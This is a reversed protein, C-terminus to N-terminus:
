PKTAIVSGLQQWPIAIIDDRLLLPRECRCIIYAPKVCAYQEMFKILHRADYLTPTESWKIEIPIYQKDSELVYDVEPGAHDRWYRLRKTPSTIRLIRLLELGIFQEFLIGMTKSSLETGELAAIRRIGMDFFLYKPAKTLKKRSVSHTIPEIKEAILCDELVHFYELLTHRGVGLEQSLKSINLQNGAEVAALELFRAFSGLQRVLAESRVEEELYNKVYAELDIQKIQHSNELYVGPLSGFLLLVEIDPLPQSMELLCLPDLHFNIVRGPLLNFQSHRRLKRVSSGTLIFQAEQNDILLQIADMLAPIKQVEDIIVLPPRSLHNLRKFAAIEQRLLNPSKEFRLRLEPDLLSYSLDSLGLHKLLTTKGTQRPGLLLISKGRTLTEQLHKEIIRPIYNM